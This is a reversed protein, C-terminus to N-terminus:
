PPPPHQPRPPPRPSVPQLIPCPPRLNIFVLTCQKSKTGCGSLFPGPKPANPPMSYPDSQRVFLATFYVKIKGSAIRSDMRTRSPLWLRAHGSGSASPPRARSPGVLSCHGPPSPGPAPHLISTADPSPSDRRADTSCLWCGAALPGATWRDAAMTRGM